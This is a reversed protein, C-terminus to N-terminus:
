IKAPTELKIESAPVTPLAAAEKTFSDFLITSLYREGYSPIIAVILKGENEPRAALELAAFVAAGGSFGCFIGENQPLARAVRIAEESPCKITESIIKTDLVDPVFGPGIGQIKHPGPASGSLVASESPEVAVIKVNPNKKLLYHAVGTITGGTGTGSVFIDVKGQTQQWIEPGTTEEHIEANYPTSFQESLVANPTEAVVQKAKAIAGKMGLSGPTLIVEAGLIKLLSRRELSMTEPMTIIVRYGRIAGIHALAIGTNGSTAEVIVTKGPIFKGDRESKSFIGLALRDKVSGMPNESELKVAIKAKTTNLRNVYVMPTQCILDVMNSAINNNKDFNATM